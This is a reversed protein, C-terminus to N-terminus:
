TQSDEQARKSTKFEPFTTIIVTNRGHQEDKASQGIIGENTKKLESLYHKYQADTLSIYTFVGLGGKVFDAIRTRAEADASKLQEALIRYQVSLAEFISRVMTVAEESSMTDLSWRQGPSNMRGFMAENLRYFKEVYNGKVRVEPKLLLGESVMESVARYLNARTVKTFKSMQTVSMRENEALLMVVNLKTPSQM